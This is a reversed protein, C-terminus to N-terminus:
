SARRDATPQEHDPAMLGKEKPKPKKVGKNKPSKDGM